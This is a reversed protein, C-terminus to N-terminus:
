LGFPFHSCAGTSFTGLLPIVLCTKRDVSVGVAEIFNLLIQFQLRNPIGFMVRMIGFSILLSLLSFAIEIGGPLRTIAALPRQM